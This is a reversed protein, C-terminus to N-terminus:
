TQDMFSLNYIVTPLKFPEERKNTRLREKNFINYSKKANGKFRRWLNLM